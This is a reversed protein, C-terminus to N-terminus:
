RGLIRYALGGVAEKAAINLKTLNEALAWGTGRALSQSRHDVPWAVIGDWGATAYSRYARAMHAASTILLWTEGPRPEAAARALRASETTTRARDEIEIRAPAIGLGELLHRMVEAETAPGGGLDRVAGSGGTVLIRADPHAHALMAVAIVRDAGDNTTPRGWRLTAGMDEGGGLLILGDIRQPLAAPPAETLGLAWDGFPLLGLALVAGASGVALRRASRWRRWAAWATAVLLFAFWTDARVGLGVAKGLVFLITDM